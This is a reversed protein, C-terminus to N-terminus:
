KGLLSCINDKNNDSKDDNDSQYYTLTMMSKGSKYCPMAIVIIM